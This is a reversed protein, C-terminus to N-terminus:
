SEYDELNTLSINHRVIVEGTIGNRNKAVNLVMLGRSDVNKGGITLEDIGYYSPRYLLIVIDADQEIAGSERLDALQPRKDARSEALRNLQSLVVVAIQLDKAISKLGRSLVSIEQERNNGQSSMLQLYDVIVLQIGSRAKMRRVKARLETLNIASTDDIWLPLSLLPESTKLLAQIDCKGSMLEMNTYESVGSLLRRAIEQAGMELSFLACPYGLGAASRAIQLAVATKGMSPRGAIVTMEGPKFGGTIRDLATFGSPVGLLSVERSQIKEITDIAEDVLVGIKLAGKPYLQMSISLIEKEAEEAVEDLGKDTLSAIKLGVEQYRRLFYKERLSAIHASLAATSTVPELLGTIYVVDPNKGQETLERTVAPLDYTGHRRTLELCTEYIQRLGSFYFMEPTLLDSVAQLEDPAALLMGIVAEEAAASFIPTKDPTM